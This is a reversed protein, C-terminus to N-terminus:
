LPQIIPNSSQQIFSNLVCSQMDGVIWKDLFGNMWNKM